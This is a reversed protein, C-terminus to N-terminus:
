EDETGLAKIYSKRKWKFVLSYNGSARKRLFARDTIRDRGGM